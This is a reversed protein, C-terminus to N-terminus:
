CCQKCTDRRSAATIVTNRNSGQKRSPHALRGHKSVALCNVFPNTSCLQCFSEHLLELKMLRNNGVRSWSNGAIVRIPESDCYKDRLWALQVASQACTSLPRWAYADAAEDDGLDKSDSPGVACADLTSRVEDGVFLKWASRCDSSNAPIRWCLLHLAADFKSMSASRLDEAPSRAVRQGRQWGKDEKNM